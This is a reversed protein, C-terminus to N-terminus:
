SARLLQSVPALKVGQGALEPLVQRLVELTIEHPHAIGIARGKLRALRVLRKIQSRIAQPTQINDIFVDREAAAVGMQLAIRYGESKSSTRSDLFFLRRRKLEGIVVEMERKYECFRSGMHNNVGTVFPVSDLNERLLEILRDNPMGVLLAGTGPDVEPYGKPELPLHLLLEKGAAQARRAIGKSFPARPLISFCLPADIQLFRQALRGDFGLDDIVIAVRADPAESDDPEQRCGHYFTLRHTVLDGVKIVVALHDETKGAREWAVRGPLSTLNAAILKEARAPDQGRALSIELEAYDWHREGRSRPTVERFRIQSESVGLQHLSKYIALEVEGLLATFGGVNTEEYVPVEQRGSRLGKGVWILAVVGLLFVALLPWQWRRPLDIPM